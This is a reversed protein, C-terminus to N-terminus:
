KTTNKKSKKKQQYYKEGSSNCFKQKNITINNEKCWIDFQPCIKGFIRPNNSKDPGYLAYQILDRLVSGAYDLGYEKELIKIYDYWESYFVFSHKEKKYKPNDAYPCCNYGNHYSDYQDYYYQEREPLDDENEVIEVIEYKLKSKDDLSNYCEQLKYSHHVGAKLASQHEKWREEINSSRGIYVKGNEINTIKYIGQM